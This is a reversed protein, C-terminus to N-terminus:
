GLYLKSWAAILWTTRLLLISRLVSWFVLVVVRGQLDSLRHREGTSDSLVFDGVVEGLVVQKGETM